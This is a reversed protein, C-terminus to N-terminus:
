FINKEKIIVNLCVVKVFKSSIHKFQLDSVMFKNNSFKVTSKTILKKFFGAKIKFLIQQHNRDKDSSIIVRITKVICPIIVYDWFLCM